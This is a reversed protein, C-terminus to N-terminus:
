NTWGINNDIYYKKKYGDTQWGNNYWAYVWSDEINQINYKSATQKDYEFVDTKATPTFKYFYSKNAKSHGADVLERGLTFYTDPPAFVSATQTLQGTGSTVIVDETTFRIVEMNPAAMKKMM